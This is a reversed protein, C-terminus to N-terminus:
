SLPAPTTEHFSHDRNELRGGRTKRTLSGVMRNVRTTQLHAHRSTCVKVKGLTETARRASRVRASSDRPTLFDRDYERPSPEDTAMALNGKTEDDRVFRAGHFANEWECGVHDRPQNEIRSAKGVNAAVSGSAFLVAAACSGITV